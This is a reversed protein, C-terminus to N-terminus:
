HTTPRSSGLDGVRSDWRSNSRRGSTSRIWWQKEQHEAAAPLVNRVITQVKPFEGQAVCDSLEKTVQVLYFTPWTGVMTICPITMVDLTQWNLENTCMQNNWQYATNAEAILQPEPNMISTARKDEQIVLLIM